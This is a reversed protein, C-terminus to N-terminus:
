VGIAELVLRVVLTTVVGSVVVAIWAVMREDVPWELIREARDALGQAASLTSSHAELTRLDAGSRIPEYAAAVLSRAMAVYGAKAAQMQRHFHVISLVLLLVTVGVVTLSIAFTTLDRGAVILVPGSAAIVMWFGAIATAGVPGLGLSRDEPYSDLTLTSRGIRDLGVLISGYAWVFTGIPIVMLFLLPLDALAVAPGFDLWTSPTAIAVCVFAVLLPGRVSTLQAFWSRPPATPAVRALVPALDDVRRDLRPAAWLAVLVVWTFGVQSLFVDALREPVLPQHTLVLVIVLDILRLPVSLAWLVIWVWRPGPLRRLIRETLPMESASNSEAM